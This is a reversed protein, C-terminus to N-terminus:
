SSTQKHWGFRRLADFVKGTLIKEAGDPRGLLQWLVFVTGIYTVAGLVVAAILLPLGELTTTPQPFHDIFRWVVVYMLTAAAIPRWVQRAFSAVSVGLIRFIVGLSAPIMIVATLLYASAAGKLGYLSTLPILAALQIVAHVGNLWTPIDVRGLALYAAQANSQIIYTYGFLSLLTLVPIAELWNPGLMVPVLVPSTVALGLVAPTAMLVIMGIVSLYERRLHEVGEKALKAYAPFVARNIPAVLETSPLTAVEHAITFAGLPTAGAIRGVVLSASRDKVFHIINLLFMWKSFHMLNAAASLTFRPRYPHVWYSLATSLVRGATQGIVLAWYSDLIFALPVTIAFGILKKATLFRFERDFQMESRFAVLGINQLGQAFSGIALVWLVAVLRPENFFSAAVNAGLVMALAILAGILVNFTWATDWHPRDKTQKQILATDFGFASMMELLVVFSMAMAVVGFDQPVLVRALILMSVLGLSREALKALVMWM